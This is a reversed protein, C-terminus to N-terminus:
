YPLYKFLVWICCQEPLQRNKLVDPQCCLLPWSSLHSQLVPNADACWSFLLAAGNGTSWCLIESTQPQWPSLESNIIVCLVRREGRGAPCRPGAEGFSQPCAPVPWLPNLYKVAAEFFKSVAVQLSRFVDLKVYFDQYKGVQSLQEWRLRAAQEVSRKWCTFDCNIWYLTVVTHYFSYAYWEFAKNTLYISAKILGVEKTISHWQHGLTLRM